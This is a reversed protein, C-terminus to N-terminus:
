KSAQDLWAQIMYYKSLIILLFFFVTLIQHQYDHIIWKNITWLLVKIRFVGTCKKKKEQILSPFFVRIQDCHHNSFYLKYKNCKQSKPTSEKKKKHSKQFSHIKDDVSYQWGSNYIYWWCLLINQLKVVFIFLEKRRIKIINQTHKYKNQWM